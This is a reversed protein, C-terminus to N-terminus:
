QRVRRQLAQLHLRGLLPGQAPPPHPEQATRRAELARVRAGQRLVGGPHLAGREGVSPPQRCPPEQHLPRGAPPVHPLDPLPQRCQLLRRITDDEPPQLLLPVIKCIGNRSAEPKIRLIYAIPDAFEVLTPHYEPAVPLTQLWEPPEVAAAKTDRTAEAEADREAATRASRVSGSDAASGHVGVASDAVM